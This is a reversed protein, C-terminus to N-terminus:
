LDFQRALGGMGRARFLSDVGKFAHGAYHLLQLGVFLFQIRGLAAVHIEVTPRAVRREINATRERAPLTVLDVGHRGM